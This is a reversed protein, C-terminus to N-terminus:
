TVAGLYGLALRVAEDEARQPDPPTAGTWADITARIAGPLTRLARVLTEGSFGHRALLAGMIAGAEHLSADVRDGVPLRAEEHDIARALLAHDRDGAMAARVLRRAATPLDDDIAAAAAARLASLREAQEREILAAILAEKGPFYQYLTGVSCGARRAIANTNLGPLGRAMLLQATAEILADRTIQSRSQLPTRRPALLPSPTM